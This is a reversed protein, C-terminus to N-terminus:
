RETSYPNSPLVRSSAPFRYPCSPLPPTAPPTMRTPIPMSARVPQHHGPIMSTIPHPMAASRKRLASVSCANPARAIKEQGDRQGDGHQLPYVDGPAEYAREHQYRQPQRDQDPRHRPALSQPAGRVPHSGKGLEAYGRICSLYREGDLTTCASKASTRACSGSYPQTEGTRWPTLRDSRPQAPDRTNERGTIRRCRAITYSLTDPRKGRAGAPHEM